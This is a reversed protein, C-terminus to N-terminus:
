FLLLFQYEEDTLQNFPSIEFDKKIEMDCSPCQLATIKLNGHCYPCTTLMRKM